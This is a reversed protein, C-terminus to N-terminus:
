KGQKGLNDLAKNIEEALHYVAKEPNNIVVGCAPCHFGDDQTYQEILSKTALIDAEDKPERTVEVRPPKGKFDAISTPTKPPQEM